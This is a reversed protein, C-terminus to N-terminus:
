GGPKNLRLRKTMAYTLYEPNDHIIKALVNTGAYTDARTGRCMSLQTNSLRDDCEIDHYVHILNKDPARFVDFESKVAKEYLDVDEKGWGDITLNFGRISRYDQKYISVIGFGFKRWYGTDENIVFSTRKTPENQAIRPDFQSFVVPFYIRRNLVTNLRIRNLASETFVIDVDIFFLLDDDDSEAVALELARARSFNGSGRLVEIKSNTYKNNMENVLNITRDYTEETRHRYLVIVLETRENTLLCIEEYNKLFREFIAYRGSLPLIFRIVKNLVSITTDGIFNLFGGRFINQLSKESDQRRQNQDIEKCDVVERIELGTFILQVIDFLINM